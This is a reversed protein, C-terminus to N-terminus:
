PRRKRQAAGGKGNGTPAQPKPQKALLATKAAVEVEKMHRLEALLQDVEAPDGQWTGVHRLIAERSGRPPRHSPKNRSPRRTANAVRPPGKKVRAYSM